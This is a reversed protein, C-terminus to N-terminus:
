VGFLEEYSIMSNKKLRQTVVDIEEQTMSKDALILSILYSFMGERADPNRKLVESISSAFIEGVNQENVDELFKRPFIHFASLNNLVVDLEESTIECYLNIALGTRDVAHYISFFDYYGFPVPRFQITEASWYTVVVPCVILPELITQM